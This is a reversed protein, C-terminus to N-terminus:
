FERYEYHLLGQGWWPMKDILRADLGWTTGAFGFGLCLQSVIFVLSVLVADVGQHATGLLVNLSMLAGLVAAPATFLGLTLCAGVAMQALIVTTAFATSSPLVVEKLFGAYFHFPTHAIADQITKHFNTVFTQDLKGWAAYLFWLGIFIRLVALSRQQLAVMRPYKTDM